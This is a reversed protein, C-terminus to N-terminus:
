TPLSQEMIDEYYNISRNIEFKIIDLLTYQMNEILNTLDSNRTFYLLGNKLCQILITKENIALLLTATSINFYYSPLM